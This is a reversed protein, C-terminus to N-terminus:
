GKFVGKIANFVGKFQSVGRSSGGATVAEVVALIIQYVGLGVAAIAILLYDDFWLAGISLTILGSVIYLIMDKKTFALFALGILLLALLIDGFTTVFGQFTVSLDLISDSIDEMGEGGISATVYEISYLDTGENYSWASFYYTTTELSFGTWNCTTNGGYYMLEGDTVTAPYTDRAARILTHTANATGATWNGTVTIAGLDVLTFGTVAGPIGFGPTATVLVDATTAAMAPSPPTVIPLVTGILVSVIIIKLWKM